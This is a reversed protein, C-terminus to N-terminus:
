HGGTRGEDLEVPIEISELEVTTAVPPAVNDAPVALDEEDLVVVIMVVAPQAQVSGGVDVVAGGLGDAVLAGSHEGICVPRVGFPEDALRWLRWM